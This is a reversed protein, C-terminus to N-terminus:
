DDKSIHAAGKGAMIVDDFSGEHELVKSKKSQLADEIM